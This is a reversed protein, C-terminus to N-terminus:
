EANREYHITFEIVWEYVGNDDSGINVPEPNELELYYITTNNISFHTRNLLASYLERAARESEDANKNWHVLIKASMLDYSSCSLGGIAMVPPASRQQGYVGISQEQKNDLKGIYFHEGIRLSKLWDRVSSLRMM